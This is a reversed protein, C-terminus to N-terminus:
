LSVELTNGNFSIAILEGTMIEGNNPHIYNVESGLKLDNSSLLSTKKITRTFM